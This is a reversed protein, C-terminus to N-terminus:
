GEPAPESHDVGVAVVWSCGCECTLTCDATGDELDTRETVCATHGNHKWYPIKNYTVHEHLKMIGQQLLPTHCPKGYTVGPYHALSYNSSVLIM